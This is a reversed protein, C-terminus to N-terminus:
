NARQLVAPPDARTQATLPFCTEGTRPLQARRRRQPHELGGMAPDNRHGSVNRRGTPRRPPAPDARQRRPRHLLGYPLRRHRAHRGSIGCRARRSDRAGRRRRRRPTRARHHGIGMKEGDVVSITVNGAEFEACHREPVYVSRALGLVAGYFACAADTDRTSLPVFDVRTILESTTAM